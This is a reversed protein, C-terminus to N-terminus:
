HMMMMAMKMKGVAVPPSVPVALPPSVPAATPAKVAGAFSLFVAADSIRNTGVNTGDAVTVKLQHTGVPLDLTAVQTTTYYPLSTGALIAPLKPDFNSILQDCNPGGPGVGNICYITAASVAAGGILAVNKNNLFLGFIDPYFTIQNQVYVYWFFDVSGFVYAIKITVPRSVKVQISLVAADLSSYAPNITKLLTDLDADNPGGFETDPAFNPGGFKVEEVKGSSLVIGTSPLGQFLGGVQLYVGHQAANGQLEAKLIEVGSKYPNLLLIAQEMADARAAAIVGPQGVATEILLTAQLAALGVTFLLSHRMAIEM